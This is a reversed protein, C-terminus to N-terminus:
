IELVYNAFISVIRQFKNGQFGNMLLSITFSITIKYFIM